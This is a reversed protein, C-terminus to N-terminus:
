VSLARWRMVRREFVNVSEGVCVGVAMLVILIAFMGTMDIQQSANM